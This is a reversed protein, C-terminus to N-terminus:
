EKRSHQWSLRARRVSNRAIATDAELLPTLEAIVMNVFSRDFDQKLGIQALLNMQGLNVGSLNTNQRLIKQVIEVSPRIKDLKILRALAASM